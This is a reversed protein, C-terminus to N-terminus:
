QLPTKYGRQPVKKLTALILDIYLPFQALAFLTVPLCTVAYVPFAVSKLKGELIFFHGVCFCVMISTISMFLSTLGLILKRPLIKGFDREQYRSTLISLFIVMSTVSCCLAILSSIAFVKFEPRYGLTPTGIDDKFDGPVTTSTSFAVTAILAAVVSCSESTKKLWEGGSKLLDRHTESFIDRPTKNKRNYRRFFHPQMTEKVFLYWKIEWHMQLAEGPFLWPKYDGLKAALHLASNGENDVSGFISEKLNKKKLLLDYLYTQRNEVALLVINKKNADMDHVAVPFSEMIKEVMETVGNKAAILIPTERVKEEMNIKENGNKQQKDETNRDWTVNGWEDFCYPNTHHDKNELKQEPVSGDDAYEYTSAKALLVDTGFIVSMIVFVIKFLDVCRQYNPPFLPHQWDSTESGPSKTEAENNTATKKSAELDRETGGHPLIKRLFHTLPTTVVKVVTLLDTCTEFNKPYSFNEEETIPLQDETPHPEPETLKKVIIAKYVIREFRGLHCGSKFVSPKNALLHLPTLGSENVLNVLDGYLHIIQFALDFYDGAIASHLITDGDYRRCYSYRDTNDSTYRYHLFLFAEKRGHLAALFLPTEGDVNRMSLLSAEDSAIYECMKRSGISAAFHLATNDRENKIRLAEREGKEKDRILAVLKKVIDCQRDNVAVHLATDGTRTIKATQAKKDKEYTAVVETWEGHMCLKFLRKSTEEIDESAIGDGKEAM